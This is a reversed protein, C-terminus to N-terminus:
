QNIMPANKLDFPMRLWEIRGLACVFASIRRARSTMMVAWFGSAADLSCFWLYKELESLLDNVLPMAYEMIMTIANVKKYDICLRIYVRNKKLVIVIPSAWPGKSFSVLKAQILGKLLEYLPKLYKLAVRRARQKIPPHDGVDIDCAVGYAPPPLTNGSSIMIKENRKLLETLRTAQEPTHASCKVNVGNYDLEISVEESLDPLFALEHACDELQLTEGKREFHTFRHDSETVPEDDSASAAAALFRLRLDEEPNNAIADNTAELGDSDENAENASDTQGELCTESMDLQTLHSEADREEGDSDDSYIGKSEAIAGQTDTAKKETDVAVWGEAGTLQKGKKAEPSREKVGKPWHYPEREVAPPQRSLWDAYLEQEKYLLDQYIASEYALVQRDRYWLEHTLESPQKRRVKFEATARDSLCVAETPGDATQLGYTQDDTDKLSRLLPVVVENPLKVVSNYLDLRIGALIIFDTGLILDVGAHHPMIWVEFEYFVKWDLTVKVLAKHTISVKDKGIGQIDIQQDRSSYQKLRLKRALTSSVASVNAGTDLLIKVRRDNVAGIVLARMRVRRDFKQSSWWGLREGRLLKVVRPRPTANDYRQTAASSVMASNGEDSEESERENGDSDCMEEDKGDLREPWGAEWTFGADGYDTDDESEADEDQGYASYGDSGTFNKSLTTRLIKEDIEVRKEADIVEGITEASRESTTEAPTVNIREADTTRRDDRRLEDRNRGSVLRNRQKRRKDGLIKENIIQEVRHIDNLQLPYLMDMIDDDGCNLLFQEVHDAADAGSREYQIKATRAYGNLRTLFDCITEKDKHKASYYRTRASQDFQSCYYDLFAESLLNWRTQTKWADQPMRTGKMEYIFRHSRLELYQSGGLDGRDNSLHYIQDKVTEDRSPHYGHDDDSDDEAEASNDEEPEWKEALEGKKTEPTKMTTIKSPNTAPHGGKPDKLYPTKGPVEGLQSEMGGLQYGAGGLQSGGDSATLLRLKDANRFGKEAEGELTVAGRRFGMAKLLLITTEAVEATDSWEMPGDLLPGLSPWRAQALPVSAFLKMWESDRMMEGGLQALVKNPSPTDANQIARPVLPPREGQAVGQDEDDADESFEAALNREVPRPVGMRGVQLSLEGVEGLLEATTKVYGLEAKEEYDEDEKEEDSAHGQTDEEEFQVSRSGDATADMTMAITSDASDAFGAASIGAHPSGKATAPSDERLTSTGKTM